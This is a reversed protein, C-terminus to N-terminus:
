DCVAECWPVSGMGNRGGEWRPPHIFSQPQYIWIHIRTFNIKFVVFIIFTSFLVIKSPMVQMDQAPKIRLRYVKDIQIRREVGIPCVFSWDPTLGRPCCEFISPREAIQIVRPMTFESLMLGRKIRSDTSGLKAVTLGHFGIENHHTDTHQLHFADKFRCPANIQVAIRRRAMVEIPQRFKRFSIAQSLYAPRFFLARFFNLVCCSM